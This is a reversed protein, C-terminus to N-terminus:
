KYLTSIFYLVQYLTTADIDYDHRLVVEPHCFTCVNYHRSSLKQQLEATQYKESMFQM